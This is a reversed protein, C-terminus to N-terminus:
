SRELSWMLGIAGGKCRPLLLFTLALALPVWVAIQLTASVEIHQALLIFPILLHGVLIITIWPPFDDARIHGISAGCHACHAVPKLYGRYLKGIGCQPCRMKIGRLICDKRSITPVIAPDTVTMVGSDKNKTRRAPHFTSIAALPAIQRPQSSLACRWAREGLKAALM